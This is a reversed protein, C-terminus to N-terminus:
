AVLLVVHATILKPALVFRNFVPQSVMALWMWGCGTALSAVATIQLGMMIVFLGPPTSAVLSETALDAKRLSYIRLCWGLSVQALM